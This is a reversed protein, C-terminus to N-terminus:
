RSWGYSYPWSGTAIYFKVQNINIEKMDHHEIQFRKANGWVCERHTNLTKNETYYWSWEEIVGNNWVRVLRKTGKSYPTNAQGHATIEWESYHDRVTALYYRM